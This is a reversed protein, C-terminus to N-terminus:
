SKDLDGMEEAIKEVDVAEEEKKDAKTKEKVIKKEKPISAFYKGTGSKNPEKGIKIVQGEEVADMAYALSTSGTELFKIKGEVEFKYQFVERDDNFSDPILKFGRYIVEVEQGVELKLFKSMADAHKRLEGMRLEGEKLL